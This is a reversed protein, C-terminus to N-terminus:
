RWTSLNRVFTIGPLARVIVGAGMDLLAMCYLSREKVMLIDRIPEYLLNWVPSLTQNSGPPDLGLSPM